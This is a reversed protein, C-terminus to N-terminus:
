TLSIKKGEEKITRIPHAEFLLFLFNRQFFISLRQRRNDVTKWRQTCETSTTERKFKEKKGAANNAFTQGKIIVTSKTIM